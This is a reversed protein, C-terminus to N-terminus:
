EAKDLIIRLTGVIDAVNITEDENVDAAEMFFAETPKGMIHDSIVNVDVSNVEGDGNADGRVLSIESTESLTVFGEDNGAEGSLFPIPEGDEIDDAARTGATQPRTADSGYGEGSAAVSKRGPQIYLQGARPTSVRQGKLDYLSKANPLRGADSARTAVIDTTEPEVTSVIFFCGKRMVDGTFCTFGFGGNRELNTLLYIYEDDGLSQSVRFEEVSMDETACFVDDIYVSSKTNPEVFPITMGGVTKIVAHDGAKITYKGNRVRMKLLNPKGEDLYITFVEAADKDIAVDHDPCFAALYMGSTGLDAVTTIREGTPQAGVTSSLMVLMLVPLVQTIFYSIKSMKNSFGPAGPVLGAGGITQNVKVSATTMPTM